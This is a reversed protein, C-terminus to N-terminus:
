PSVSGSLARALINPFDGRAAALGDRLYYRGPIHAGSKHSRFGVEQFLGYPVDTGVRCSLGETRSGISDRLRGTDVPALAKAKEAAAQGMESLALPLAAELATLYEGTRDAVTMRVAARM